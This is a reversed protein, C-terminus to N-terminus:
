KVAREVGARHQGLVRCTHPVFAFGNASSGASPKATQLPFHFKTNDMV